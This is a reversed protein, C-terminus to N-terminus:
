SPSSVSPFLVERHLRTLPSIEFSHARLMTGAGHFALQFSNILDAATAAGCDVTHFQRRPVIGLIGWSSRLFGSHSSSTLCSRGFCVNTKHSIGKCGNFHKLQQLLGGSALPWLVWRMSYHFLLALAELEFEVM